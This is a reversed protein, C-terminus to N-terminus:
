TLWTQTAATSPDNSQQLLSNQVKMAEECRRLRENLEQLAEDVGTVIETDRTEIVEMLQLMHKATVPTKKKPDTTSTTDSSSATPQSQISVSNTDDSMVSASSKKRGGMM